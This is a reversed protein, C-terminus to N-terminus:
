FKVYTCYAHSLIAINQENRIYVPRPPEIMNWNSLDWNKIQADYAPATQYVTTVDLMTAYQLGEEYIRAGGILYTPKEFLKSFEIADVLSTATYTDTLGLRGHYTQGVVICIRGPLVSAKLNLLDLSRSKRRALLSEYTKTGMIVVCGTTILKFRALDGPLDWPIKNEYGIYGEPTAAVILGLM